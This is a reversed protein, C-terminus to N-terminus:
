LQTEDECELLTQVVAAMTPRKNRDEEVCSIGTQILTAAQNRSFKGELRPDVLSDAWSLSGANQVMREKTNRVFKTLAAEDDDGNDDDEGVAWNYVRVGRVMELIVVGYGFVDVKATVPHNLTWEPAMYGKTGRIQTFESGTSERQLLKALGFDAIKPQFETDLLINEPKVDCHIVWELCEHHLYALGKATGLAVAYRQKWSLFSSGFLHRDLSLNDVYEYVLLRHRRESCFGWIRVLNMHNIKGLTTIEALYEDQSQFADGLRKVAVVRDDSLVGKYVTSSGGRGLEQRFDNTAKKLESYSYRRFQSSIMRYGAEVSAPINHKRFLFWWGIAVFILEIGGLIGAFSYVYVWRVKKYNFDYMSPSGVVVSMKSSGCALSSSSGFVNPRSVEVSDPLKIYISGPFDPSAYGNLLASKVYCQGQGLLRYSFALCRFDELCMDRCSELTTPNTANLDFGYYDAHPIELFKVKRSKLLSRNFMAKCGANWDTPDNAEFGPPCTCKPEPAYVCLASRGCVGKVDCSKALAQWTIDWLRTSNNLSYVRLNGDYDMTMRRKVGYGLDSVNFKLQDSSEFRGMEDLVAIRSSNYNTRGNKYIDQDPNPWYTTSTDPKDSILRLVNDSGFYLNFYGSEFTGKRLGSKLRTNKTFAQSPLLTDTPSDFSQWLIDGRPNKLVLNGTNLLEAAAVDITSTNTQWVITGDIDTLVMAGDRRLSLKSGKRYVPRDRNATWVVTKDQSHTFWIAFWYANTGLSYFGCTFSGDPSFIFKSEKGVPISDGRRLHFKSSSAASSVFTLVWFICIANRM